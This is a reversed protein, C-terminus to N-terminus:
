VCAGDLCLLGYDACDTTVRAITGGSCYNETLKAKLSATCADTHLLNNVRDLVEGYVFPDNGEDSDECYPTSEASMPDSGVSRERLDSYGDGDTDSNKSISGARLAEGSIDESSWSGSIGGNMVMVVIGVVAVICVIGLIYKSSNDIKM